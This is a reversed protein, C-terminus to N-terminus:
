RPGWTLEVDFQGITTTGGVLTITVSTAGTAPLNHSFPGGSVAKILGRERTPANSNPLVATDDAAQGAAVRYIEVPFGSVSLKSQNFSIASINSVAVSAM